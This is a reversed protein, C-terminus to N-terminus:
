LPQESKINDDRSPRATLRNIIVMKKTPSGGSNHMNCIPFGLPTHPCQTVLYEKCIPIPFPLHSQPHQTKVYLAQLCSTAHDEPNTGM